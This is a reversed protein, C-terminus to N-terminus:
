RRRWGGEPGAGAGAGAGASSGQGSGSGSGSAVFPGMDSSAFYGAAAPNLAGVDYRMPQFQGQHAFNRAAAAAALMNFQSVNPAQMQM